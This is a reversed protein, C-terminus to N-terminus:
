RDDSKVSYLRHYQFMTKLYGLFRDVNYYRKRSLYMWHTERRVNRDSRGFYRLQRNASPQRDDFPPHFSPLFFTLFFPLFSSSSYTMSPLDATRIELYANRRKVYNKYAFKICHKVCVGAAKCVYHMSIRVTLTQETRLTFPLGTIGCALESHLRRAILYFKIKGVGPRQLMREYVSININM